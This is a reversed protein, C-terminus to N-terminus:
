GDDVDVGKVIGNLVIVIVMKMVLMIIKIM